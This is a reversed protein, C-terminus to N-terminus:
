KMLPGSPKLRKTERNKKTTANSLPPPTSQSNITPISHPTGKPASKSTATKPAPIGSSKTPAAIASKTPKEQAPAAATKTPAKSKPEEEAKGQSVPKAEAIVTRLSELIPAVVLKSAPKLDSCQKKIAEVGVVPAVEKLVAEAAHRVEASKDELCAVLPKVIPILDIKKQKLTTSLHKPIWTLVDKRGIVYDVIPGALLPIIPEMTIEQVLASLCDCVADRVNKKNDAFNALVAGIFPKISKEIQPGTASALLSILEMAQVALNKNSDAVRAKLATPLGGLNPGIRKNASLVIGTVAELGEKRVKWNADGLQKLLAPSIQASIDERPLADSGGTGEAPAEKFAKKPAQPADVVKSFEEDITNLLAPKVDAFYDRLSAGVYKKLVALTKIAQSRVGANSSEFCEKTFDIYPKLQLGAIGFDDLTTAMWTLTELTVKPNKHKSTLSYIQQFGFQISNGEIIGSLCDLVAAKVKLDAIKEIIGPIIMVCASKSMGKSRALNGVIM